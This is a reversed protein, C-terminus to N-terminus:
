APGRRLLEIHALIQEAHETLAKTLDALPLDFRLAVQAVLAAAVMMTDVPDAQEALMADDVRGIMRRIRERDIPKEAEM